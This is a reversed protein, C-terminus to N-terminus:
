TAKKFSFQTLFQVPLENTAVSGAQGLAGIFIFSLIEFV